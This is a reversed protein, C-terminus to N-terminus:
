KFNKLLEEIELNTLATADDEEVSWDGDQVKLVKGNDEETVTPLSTGGESNGGFLKPNMTTGVTVGIIKRSM